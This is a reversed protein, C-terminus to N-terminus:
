ATTWSIREALGRTSPAGDVAAFGGEATTVFREVLRTACSSGTSRCRMSSRTPSSRRRGPRDGDDADVCDIPSAPPKSGSGPARRARAVEVDVPRYRIAGALPSGDDRLGDLLGAALAGTGAGHESSSSRRRVASRTGRRSSRPPRGRRRLDPATEPATLFDGDRGPAPTPDATTATVRSTCPASWSGRSRSRGTPGRDRRPDAAVLEADEGVSQPTRRPTAAPARGPDDSMARSGSRSRCGPGSSRQPRRAPDPDAGRARGRHARAAVPRRDPRRAAPRLRLPGRPGALRGRGAGLRHALLVRSDILAGDALEALHRGPARSRGPRAPSRRCSRPARGPPAGSMARARAPQRRAPGAGRGPRPGPGRTRRELWRVTAASTRGAVCWSPGPDHAVTRVGHWRSACADGDDDPDASRAARPRCWRAAISTWRWGGGRRAPRPRPLGRGGRALAAARQRLRPGPMARLSRGRAPSRWSTRRTATTRSRSGARRRRRRARVGGPRRATALPISAPAWSSSGAM